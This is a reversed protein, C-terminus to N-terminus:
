ALSRQLRLWRDRHPGEGAHLDAFEAATEGLLDLAGDRDGKAAVLRVRSLAALHRWEDGVGATPVADHYRLCEELSADTFPDHSAADAPVAVVCGLVAVSRVQGDWRLHDALFGLTVNLWPQQDAYVERVVLASGALLAPLFGALARATAAATAGLDVHLLEVPSGDWPHDDLEGLHLAVLDDYPAVTRQLRPAFSDGLHVTVGGFTRERKAASSAPAPLFGREFGHVPRAGRFQALPTSALVPNVRLGEAAAVLPAGLFSGLDVIAGRGSWTRAALQEVLAQEPGSSMSGPAPREKVAAVGAALDVDRLATTGVASDGLMPLVTRRGDITDDVGTWGWIRYISRNGIQGVARDLRMRADGGTAPDALVDAYEETLSHLHDIAERPRGKHAMLWGRSVALRFAWSRGLDGFATADHYRLCDDFTGEVFPDYSAVDAPVARTSSYVSSSRVQGEWRFYDALFGMTVKIWPLRDFFFDQNILTSAGPIMAPVFERSVHANLQPTKCVDIFAIEIPSGDWREENLDGIHLEIHRRYPAVTRELIPVFDDGLFYEVGGFSRRRDVAPDSPAPLFGLEYGHVPKGQPFSLLDLSGLAPHDLLGEAEAVLSSGFFSGGDIIAGDGRWTRAVLSTLLAREEVTLMGPVDGQELLRAIADPLDLGALLDGGQIGPALTRIM